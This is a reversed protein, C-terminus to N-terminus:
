CPNGGDLYKQYKCWELFSHVALKNGIGKKGSPPNTKQMVKGDFTYLHGHRFSYTWTSSDTSDFAYDALDTPTFGLGHIKCDYKHAQEIFWHLYKFENKTIRKAAIGGIAIYDYDKCLRLFYEKGRSRHWVPITQKQTKNEIKKRIEEVKALGIVSDVDMEFFYNIGRENIFDIYADVYRELGAAKKPDQMMSFAGSDLLFLAKQELTLLDYFKVWGRDYFSELYYKCHSLITYDDFRSDCERAISALYLKMNSARERPLKDINHLTSALYLQM